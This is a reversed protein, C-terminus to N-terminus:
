MYGLSELKKRVNAEDKDSLYQRTVEAASATTTTLTLGDILEQLVRGSFNSPVPLGMWALVTAPIDCLEASIQQPAVDPGSLLFIGERRHCAKRYGTNEYVEPQNYAFDSQVSSSITEVVLDPAASHRADEIDFIEEARHVTLVAPAQCRDLAALVEERVQHYQDFSVSGQPERGELNIYVPLYEEGVNGTYAQTNTWDIGGLDIHNQTNLKIKDLSHELWNGKMGLRKVQRLLRRRVAYNVRDSFKLEREAEDTEPRFSLFGQAALWDNLHWVAEVPGFGHDSLVVVRAAAGAWDLMSGLYADIQKFYAEIRPYYGYVDHGNLVDWFFHQLEDVDRAVVFCTDVENMKLLKDTIRELSLHAREMQDLIQHRNDDATEWSKGASGKKILRNLRSALNRPYTFASEDDPTPLGSVMCGNIKWAPYTMPIKLALVSGADGMLELITPKPMWSANVSTRRGSEPQWALFDYIGHKEPKRGTLISSWAAASNVPVISNLVGWSGQQRLGALNPMSGSAIFQDLISWTGGDIGFILTRRNPSLSNSVKM